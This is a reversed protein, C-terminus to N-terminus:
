TKKESEGEGHLPCEEDILFWSPDDRHGRGYHNDVVPCQCGEARAEPSGPNPTM